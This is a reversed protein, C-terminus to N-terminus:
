PAPCALEGTVCVDEFGKRLCAWIEKATGEACAAYADAPLLPRVRVHKDFSFDQMYSRRRIASAGLIELEYDDSGLGFETGFRIQGPLRDRLAAAMCRARQLDATSVADPDEITGGDIVFQLPGDGACLEPLGCSLEPPFELGPDNAEWDLCVGPDGTTGTTAPADTTSSSTAPEGTTTATPADTTTAGSSTSGSSTSGDSDTASDSDGPLGPGCGLLFCSLSCIAYFLKM